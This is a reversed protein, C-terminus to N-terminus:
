IKKVVVVTSFAGLALVRAAPKSFHHKLQAFEDLIGQCSMPGRNAKVELEPLNLIVNDTLSRLLIFPLVLAYIHVSRM